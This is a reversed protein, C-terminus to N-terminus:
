EDDKHSKHTERASALEVQTRVSVWKLHCLWLLSARRCEATERAVTPAILQLEVM